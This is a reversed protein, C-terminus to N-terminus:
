LERPFGSIMLILASGVISVLSPRFDLLTLLELELALLRDEIESVSDFIKRLLVMVSLSMMSSHSCVTQSSSCPSIKPIFPQRPATWPLSKVVAEVVPDNHCRTHNGVRPSRLQPVPHLKTIICHWSVLSIHIYWVRLYIPFCLHAPLVAPFM